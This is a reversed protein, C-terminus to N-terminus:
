NKVYIDCDPAIKLAAALIPDDPLAEKGIPSYATESSNESVPMEAAPAAGSSAEAAMAEAEAADPSGMLVTRPSLNM